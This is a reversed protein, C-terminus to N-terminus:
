RGQSEVEGVLEGFWCAGNLVLVVVDEFRFFEDEAGGEFVDGHGVVVGTEVVAAGREGPEADGGM